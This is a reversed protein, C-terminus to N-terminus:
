KGTPSDWIMHAAYLGAPGAGAILVKSPREAKRVEYGDSERGALPNVSCRRGGTLGREAMIARAAYIVDAKGSALIDEMMEPDNLAGITAIPKHVHKRIEVALDLHVAHEQFMSPETYISSTDFSGASVHFLDVYPELIKAIRCGEDIDYGGEFMESGSM